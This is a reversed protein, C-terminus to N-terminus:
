EPKIILFYVKNELAYMKKWNAIIQERHKFSKYQRFTVFAYAGSYLEIYGHIKSM